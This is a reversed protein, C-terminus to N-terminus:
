PKPSALEKKPVKSLRAATAGGITLAAIAPMRDIGDKTTNRRGSMTATNPNEKLREDSLYVSRVRLSSCGRNSRLILATSKQFVDGWMTWKTKAEGTNMTNNKEWKGFISARIGWRTVALLAISAPTFRTSHRNATVRMAVGTPDTIANAFFGIM